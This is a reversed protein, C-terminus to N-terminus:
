IQPEAISYITNQPLNKPTKPTEQKKTKKRDHKKKRNIYMYVVAKMAGM